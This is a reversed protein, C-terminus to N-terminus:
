YFINIPIIKWCAIFVDYVSVTFLQTIKVFTAEKEPSSGKNITHDNEPFLLEPIYKYVAGQDTLCIGKKTFDVL